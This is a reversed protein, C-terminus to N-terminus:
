ERPGETMAPKLGCLARDANDHYIKKLTEDPLYAGYIRWDGETPFSNDYYDFYEDDTELYRYYILERPQDPRGPYRDTGFCIRDQYKLLFKRGAYPQRGLEPVRGSIDVYLNPLQDLWASLQAINEGSNALHASIFVTEPHRGIMRVHEALVQDYTPFGPRAFDWDPHRKLQMWRENNRDIPKFFASPDASHILVPMGLRGCAAWAPDLRPDDVTVRRGSKDKVTLGLNKFVKLGAAGKAHADELFKVVDTAFTPDDIKSFDLNCFVLLRGNSGRCAALMQDLDKGFGGSLNVAKEEGLKDMAKLLAEPKQKLSWHCHVDIVPFKPKAVITQKTVLSSQPTYDKILEDDVYVARGASEFPRTAPARQETRAMAATSEAPKARPACGTLLFLGLLM